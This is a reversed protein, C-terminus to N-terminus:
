EPLTVLQLQQGMGAARIEKSWGKLINKVVWSSDVFVFM